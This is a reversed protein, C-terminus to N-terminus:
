DNAEEDEDVLTREYLKVFPMYILTCIVLMVAQVLCAKLDGGSGIFTAFIVPTTAPTYVILPDVFGIATAAYGLLICVTPCLVFPIIMIPNLMVPLGFIIPEGINFLAPISAIKAIERNQKKKGVIFIAIVLALICGAGGIRLYYDMFADSIINPAKLGASLAIMNENMNAALFPRLVVNNVASSHIGLTFVFSAIAAVFTFGPLGTVLGKLPVQILSVVFQYITTGALRFIFAIIAFIFGTLITPILVNFSKASVEPVGAPMKIQLHTNNSLKMFITTGILGIIMAVIIGSTGTYTFSIMNTANITTEESTVALTLPMIIVMISLVSLVAGIPNDFNKYKSLYYSIAVALALSIINNTGNTVSTFITRISELTEATMFGSLIGGDNFILSSFLTAFSSLMMLPIFAMFSSQISKIYNNAALKRSFVTIKNLFTNSTNM